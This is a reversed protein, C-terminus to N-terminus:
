LRAVVRDAIGRYCTNAITVTLGASEVASVVDPLEHRWYQGLDASNDINRNQIIAKRLKILVGLSKSFGEKRMVHFFLDKTWAMTDIPRGVDVIYLYGNPKLKAASDNIVQLPNPFSYLANIVVILDYSAKHDFFESINSQEISADISLSRYKERALAVMESNWDWHTISSSQITRKTEILFNGTGAGLECVAIKTDRGQYCKKLWNRYDSLLEQYHYNYRCLLDYATAYDWWSVERDTSRSM